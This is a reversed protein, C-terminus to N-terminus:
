GKEIFKTDSKKLYFLYILNFITQIVSVINKIRFAHSVGDSREAIIVEVTNFTAGSKILKLLIEAQYAFGNTKIEISNILKKRHLVTGNYYPFKCRFIFNLLNTFIVSLVQRFKNRVKKNEVFPIIIDARGLENLIPTISDAPHSNDGPIMIVYEGNAFRVGSSYAGGLGINKNHRIGFCVEEQTCIYNIVDWSNDNSGDDIYLIEYFYNFNLMTTKIEQYVSWLNVAENYGPVIFSLEINKASRRNNTFSISRTYNM